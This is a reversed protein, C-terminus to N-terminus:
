FTVNDTRQKRGFVMVILSKETLRLQVRHKTIFLQAVGDAETCVPKNSAAFNGFQFQFPTEGHALKAGAPSYTRTQWKSKFLNLRLEKGPIWVKYIL